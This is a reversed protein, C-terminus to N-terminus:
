AMGQLVPEEEVADHRIALGVESIDKCGQSDFGQLHMCLPHRHAAFLFLVHGLCFSRGEEVLDLLSHCMIDVGMTCRLSSVSTIALSPSSGWSRTVHILVSISWQLIILSSCWLCLSCRWITWAYQWSPFSRPFSISFGNLVGELSSASIM